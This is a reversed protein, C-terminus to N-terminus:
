NLTIKLKFEELRLLIPGLNPIMALDIILGGSSIDTRQIQSSRKIKSIRKEFQYKLIWIWDFIILM